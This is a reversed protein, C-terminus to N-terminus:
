KSLSRRPMDLAPHGDEDINEEAADATKKLVKRHTKGGIIEGLERVFAMLGEAQANLQEASAASQQAEAANKQISAEMEAMARSAGEVGRAQEESAESIEEIRSRMSDLQETAQQFAEVTRLALDLSKEIYGINGQVLETTNRASETTRLALNRVEGAVVAFGAGAEGVRAAEVAANLSLLNTQFAIEEITNIIGHVKRGAGATEQMASSLENMVSDAAEVSAKASAAAANVAKSHDANQRSMAAIQQLAASTEEVAAAQNSATESLHQGAATLQESASSVEESSEILGQTIGGLRGTIHRSFFAIGMITLVMSLGGVLLLFNRIQKSATLFDSMERTVAISWGTLPVPAYGAIKDAGKFFYSLVGPELATMREAIEEMGAQRTIDLEMVLSKDPHALILGKKDIMFSYGTAGLKFESIYNFLVDILLVNAIAGQFIGGADAVPACIPIVPQGTGKSKVPDSANIKGDKAQQFYDRDEISVGIFKGGQSDAIIKGEQDALIMLEYDDGMRSHIRELFEVLADSAAPDTGSAGNIKELLIRIQPDASIASVTKMEQSLALDTMDALTRALMFSRSKETSVLADSSRWVSFLGVIVLPFLLIAIGGFTLKKGFSLRRM